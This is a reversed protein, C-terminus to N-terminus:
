DQPTGTPGPRSPPTPTAPPASPTPTAASRGPTPTAMQRRVPASTPLVRSPGTPLLWAGDVNGEAAWGSSETDEAEVYWWVYGDGCIPGGLIDAKEGPALKGVVGGSIEPSSRLRSSLPPEYSLIVRDGVHLRTYDRGDCAQRCAAVRMDSSTSCAHKFPRAPSQVLMLSTRAAGWSEVLRPEWGGAEAARFVGPGEPDSMFFTKGDPMWLVHEVGYSLSEDGAALVKVLRGARDYLRTGHPPSAGVVIWGGDPSPFLRALTVIKSDELPFEQRITGDTEMTVLHLPAGGRNEGIRLSFAELEPHWEIRSIAWDGGWEAPLPVGHPEWDDEASLRVLRGVDNSDTCPGPPLEELLVTQTAPDLAIYSHKGFITRFMGTNLDALLLEHRFPELNCEPGSQTVLLTSEAVWGLIRDTRYAASDVEHLEVVQRGNRSVAMLQSLPQRSPPEGPLEDTEVYVAWAARPSLGLPTVEFDSQLIRRSRDAAVDYLSMVSTHVYPDTEAFLALNGDASWGAADCCAARIEEGGPFQILSAVDLAYGALASVREPALCLLGPYLRGPGELDMVAMLGDQGCFVLWPGLSSIAQAAEFLPELTPERPPLASATPTWAPPLTVQGGSPPGEDVGREMASDTQACAGLAIAALVGLAFCM